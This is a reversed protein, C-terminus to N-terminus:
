EAALAPAARRGAEGPLLLAAVEAITDNNSGGTGPALGAWTLVFFHAPAVSLSL